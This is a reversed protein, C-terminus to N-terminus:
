CEDRGWPKGDKLPRELRAALEKTSLRSSLGSFIIGPQNVRGGRGLGAKKGNPALPSV